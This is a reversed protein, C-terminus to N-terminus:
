VGAGLVKLSVKKKKAGSVERKPRYTDEDIVDGVLDYDAAQTIRVRRLQGREVEAGGLYVQGDIDPAQGAHRGAMVLDHEESPGEVLVDLERGILQKNKRRAIKRQVGMLKRWRNSITVPKVKGDQEFSKATEEDSYKFVGVHNFEAWEVFSVLEAFDEDTEGPHGVIFATRFVLDPVSKRMREVVRKQRDKGHGRKMRALMADSAHQLPM